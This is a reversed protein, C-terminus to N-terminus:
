GGVCLVVCEFTGMLIVSFLTPTHTLTHVANLADNVLCIGFYPELLAENYFHKM